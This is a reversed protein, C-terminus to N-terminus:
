SQGKRYLDLFQERSPQVEAQLNRAFDNVLLAHYEAFGTAALVIIGATNGWASDPVVFGLACALGVGVLAVVVACLTGIRSSRGTSASGRGSGRM